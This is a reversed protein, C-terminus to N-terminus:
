QRLPMSKNVEEVFEEVMAANDKLWIYWFLFLEESLRWYVRLWVEMESDLINSNRKSDAKEEKPKHELYEEVTMKKKVLRKTEPELRTLAGLSASVFHFRLPACVYTHKKTVMGLKLLSPRIYIGTSSHSACGVIHIKDPVDRWFAYRCLRKSM